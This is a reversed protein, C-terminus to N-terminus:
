VVGVGGVFTEQGRGAQADAAHPAEIAAGKAGPRNRPRNSPLQDVGIFIQDPAIKDRLVQLPEVRSRRAIRAAASISSARLVGAAASGGAVVGISCKITTTPSFRLKSLRNPVYWGLGPLRTCLRNDCPM